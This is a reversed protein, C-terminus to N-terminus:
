IYEINLKNVAYAPDDMLAKCFDAVYECNTQISFTHIEGTRDDEIVVINKFGRFLESICSDRHSIITIEYM